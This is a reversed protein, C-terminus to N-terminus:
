HTTIVVIMKDHVLTSIGNTKCNRRPYQFHFHSDMLIGNHVSFQIVSHFKECHRIWFIRAENKAKNGVTRTTTSIEVVESVVVEDDANDDDFGNNISM